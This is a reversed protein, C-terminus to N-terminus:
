VRIAFDLFIDVSRHSSLLRLEVGRVIEESLFYNSEDAKLTSVRSPKSGKKGRASRLLVVDPASPTDSRRARTVAEPASLYDNHLNARSCDSGPGLECRRTDVRENAQSRM